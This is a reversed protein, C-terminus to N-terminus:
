DVNVFDYQGVGQVLLYQSTSDLTNIVRHKREAEISCREGVNLTILHDPKKFQVTIEGELNVITETIKSHYHWPAQEQAKLRFVMVRTNETEILREVLSDNPTIPIGKKSSLLFERVLDEKKDKSLKKIAAERKGAESRSTLEEEYVRKVPQRMRTYKAGTNKGSVGNHEDTRRVLDTTIGTYLSNDVCRLM